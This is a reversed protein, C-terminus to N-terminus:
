GECGVRMQGRGQGAKWKGERGGAGGEMMEGVQAHEYALKTCSRIVTRGFWEDYVRGEEDLTWVVSFALRDEAPNLSCLDECLLRPLM